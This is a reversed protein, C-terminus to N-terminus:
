ARALKVVGWGVLGLFAFPLLLVLVFPLGVALVVLGAVALAALKVLGVALRVPLLVLKFLLGLMAVGAAAVLVAMLILFGIM